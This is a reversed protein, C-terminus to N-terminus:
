LTGSACFERAARRGCGEVSGALAAAGILLKLAAM